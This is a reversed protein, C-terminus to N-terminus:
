IVKENNCFAILRKLKKEKIEEVEHEIEISSELFILELLDSIHNVIYNNHKQLLTLIQEKEEYSLSSLDGKYELLSAVKTYEGDFFNEIFKPIYFLKLNLNYKTSDSYLEEEDMEKFISDLKSLFIKPIEKKLEYHIETRM